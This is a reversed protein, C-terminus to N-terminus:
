FSSEPQPLWCLPCTIRSTKHLLEVLQLCMPSAKVQVNCCSYILSTLSEIQLGAGYQTKHLLRVNKASISSNKLPKRFQDFLMLQGRQERDLHETTLFGGASGRSASSIAWEIIARVEAKSSSSCPLRLHVPTTNSFSSCYLGTSVGGRRGTISFETWNIPQDFLLLILFTLAPLLEWLGGVSTLVTTFVSAISCLLPSTIIAWTKLGKVLM